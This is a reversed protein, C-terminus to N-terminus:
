IWLISCLLKLFTLFTVNGESSGQKEDRIELAYKTNVKRDYKAAM